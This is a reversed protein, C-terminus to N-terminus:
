CNLRYVFINSNIFYALYNSDVDIGAKNAMNPDLYNVFDFYHIEEMTTNETVVYIQYGFLLYIYGNSQKSEVYTDSRVPALIKAKVLITKNYYRM